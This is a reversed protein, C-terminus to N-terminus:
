TFRCRPRLSGLRSGIQGAPLGEPGKQVLLRFIDLRTEQALTGLAGIVISKKMNEYTNFYQVISTLDDTVLTTRFSGGGQPGRGCESNM